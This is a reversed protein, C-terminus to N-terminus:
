NIMGPGDTLQVPVTATPDVCGTPDIGAPRTQLDEKRTLVEICAEISRLRRVPFSHVRETQIYVQLSRSVIDNRWRTVLADATQRWYWVQKIGNIMFVWRYLDLFNHFWDVLISARVNSQAWFDFQVISDFVQGIKAQLYDCDDAPIFEYERHRPKHERPERFPSKGLSGPEKRVVDWTISDVWPADEQKLNGDPNFVYTQSLGKPYAHMFRIRNREM